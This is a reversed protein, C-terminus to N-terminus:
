GEKLILVKKCNVTGGESSIPLLVMHLSLYDFTYIVSKMYVVLFVSKM